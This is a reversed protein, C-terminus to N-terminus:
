QNSNLIEQGKVDDESISIQPFSSNPPDRFLMASPTIGTAPHLRGKYNTLLQQLAEIRPVKNYRAIKMTKGVPKM